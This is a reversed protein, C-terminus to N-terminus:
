VPTIVPNGLAAAISVPIKPSTGGTFTTTVVVAFYRKFGNLDINLEAEANDTTLATITAGSVDALDSGDSADGTQVKLSVGQATPAGTAAGVSLLIVADYFGARDIVSGTVTGATQTNPTLINKLKINEALKKSM